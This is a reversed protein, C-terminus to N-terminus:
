PEIHRPDHPYLDEGVFDYIAALAGLPNAALREYRVLLLRDWQLGYAAERLANLAFGYM